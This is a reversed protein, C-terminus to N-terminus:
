RLPGEGPPDLRYGVGRVTVLHIPHEPDTEIKSRLWRVHVDVTRPDGDHGSGWVRDLIQRRTYARGPHAALMELLRFEKPRLHVAVGGRRLQHALLDLEADDAVPLTSPTRVPRVRQALIALRGALEDAGITLPVADDFGDALAALRAQVAEPEGVHVIRLGARRRREDATREVEAPTAPPVAVLALTPRLRHLLDVFTGGDSVLRITADGVISPLEVPAGHDALVLWTGHSTPMGPIPQGDM